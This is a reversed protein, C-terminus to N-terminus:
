KDAADVEGKVKAEPVNQFPRVDHLPCSTVPCHRTRNHADEGGNCDVCKAKIAKRYDGLTKRPVPAIGAALRAIRNAAATKRGKERLEPTLGNM